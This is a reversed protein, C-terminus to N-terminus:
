CENIEQENLILNHFIHNFFHHVKLQTMTISGPEQSPILNHISDMSSQIIISIIISM